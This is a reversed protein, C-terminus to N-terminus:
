YRAKRSMMVMMRKEIPTATETLFDDAPVYM